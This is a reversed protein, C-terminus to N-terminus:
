KEFLNCVCTLTIQRINIDCLFNWSDVTFSHKCRGCCEAEKLIQKVKPKTKIKVYRYYGKKCGCECYYSQITYGKILKPKKIYGKSTDVAKM